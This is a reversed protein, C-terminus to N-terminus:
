LGTILFDTLLRCDWTFHLGKRLVNENGISEREIERKREREREKERERKREREGEREPKRVKDSEWRTKRCTESSVQTFFSQVSAQYISTVWTYLAVRVWTKSWHTTITRNSHCAITLVACTPNTKSYCQVKFLTLSVCCQWLQGFSVSVAEHVLCSWYLEENKAPIKEASRCRLCQFYDMAM